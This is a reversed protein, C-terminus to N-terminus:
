VSLKKGQKNLQYILPFFYRETLQQENDHFWPYFLTRIEFTAEEMMRQEGGETVRMMSLRSGPRRSYGVKAKKRVHNQFELLSTPNEM